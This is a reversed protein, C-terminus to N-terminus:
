TKNADIELKNIVEEITPASVRTSTDDAYTLSVAFQLWLELDSVYIVFALPSFNGGQPVGSKLDMKSSLKDGIKIRQSRGTLYSRM